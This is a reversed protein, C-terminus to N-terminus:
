PKKMSAADKTYLLSTYGVFMRELPTAKAVDVYKTAHMVYTVGPAVAIAVMPHRYKRINAHKVTTVMTTM